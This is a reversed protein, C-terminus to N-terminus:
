TARRIMDKTVINAPERGSFFAETDCVVAEGVRRDTDASAGAMHPAVIVNPMTRLPHDPPLPEKVFVDLAARIRGEALKDTLAQEDFIGGRATNVLVADDAILDLQARGIMGETEPTLGAHLSIVECSRLLEDLEVLRFGHQWAVSKPLYPDYVVLDPAFPQLLEVVRFGVAGCGILGVKRGTLDKQRERPLDPRWGGSRTADLHAPIDRLMMLMMAITCEAVADGIARATNCVVIGRDIAHYASYQKVASGIVCIIKLDPAADINAESLPGDGWGTILGDAERLRESKEEETLRRDEENWDVQAFSLLRERCPGFIHRRQAARPLSVLIRPRSM